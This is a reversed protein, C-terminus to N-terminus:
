LPLKPVETEYAVYGDQAHTERLLNYFENTTIALPELCTWSISKFDKATVKGTQNKDQARCSKLIQDKYYQAEEEM